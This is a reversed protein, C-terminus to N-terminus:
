FTVQYVRWKCGCERCTRTREEYKPPLSPGEQYNKKVGCSPCQDPDRMLEHATKEISEKMDLWSKRQEPSMRRLRRDALWDRLQSVAFLLFVFGVCFVILLIIEYKNLSWSGPGFRFLNDFSIKEAQDAAQM